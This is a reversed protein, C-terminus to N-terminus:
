KGRPADEGPPVGHTQWRKISMCGPTDYVTQGVTSEVVVVLVVAVVVVVVAMAVVAVVWGGFWVSWVRSFFTM